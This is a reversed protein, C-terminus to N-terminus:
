GQEELALRLRETEDRIEEMAVRQRVIAAFTVLLALFTVGVAILFMPDELGAGIGKETIVVPKPHMSRWILVSFHNIPISLAGVIGLVASYRAKKEPELDQARIMLYALYIFWLILTLTLRADWSWWVGWIPKAWIPGTILVITCFLVGVEASAHAYIDWKRKRTVLYAVSFAMVLFFALFAIWASPVHIYFIRMVALAVSEGGINISINPTFILDFALAVVMLVLAGGITLVDYAKSGLTLWQEQLPVDPAKSERVKAYAM